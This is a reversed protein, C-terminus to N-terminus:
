GYKDRYPLPDRCCVFEVFCCSVKELLLGKLGAKDGSGTENQVLRCLYRNFALHTCSLTFSVCSTRLVAENGTVMWGERMRERSSYGGTEGGM